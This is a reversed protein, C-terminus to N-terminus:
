GPATASRRAARAGRRGDRAPGPAARAPGARGAEDLMEFRSAIEGPPAALLTARDPYGLLRVAAENAYVLRGRTDQVTVADAINTLIGELEDRAAELQGYLRANELYLGCRYALDQAGALDQEGFRRGSEASVLAIDGIVRGGARLPVIM